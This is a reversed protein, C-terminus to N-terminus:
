KLVTHVTVIFSKSSTENDSTDIATGYYSLTGPAYPGGQATCSTAASCSKLRSFQASGPPKVWIEIRRVGVDDSATATFTVLDSEDPDWTGSPSHSVRIVPPNADPPPPPEPTPPAQIVSVIAPCIEQVGGEWVWCHGAADPNVIWWWTGQANQGDVPATESQMLYGAADYVSDPGERCTLNMTAEVMFACPTATPTSTTTPSPSPEAPAEEVPAGQTPNPEEEGPVAEGAYPVGGKPPNPPPKLLYNLALGGAFILMAGAVVIAGLGAKSGMGELVASPSLGGGSGGGGAGGGAGPAGQASIQDLVRTTWGMSPRVPILAGMFVAVKKMDRETEQCAECRAIHDKVAKRQEADLEGDRYASLLDDLERCRDAGSRALMRIGHNERFSLRARHVIQRANDYTCEMANAMEHYSLGNFERLLIAQRYSAPLTLLTAHVSDQVEHQQVQREAPRRTIPPENLVEPEEVDVFRKGKRLEDLALNGAIRYLWSKFDWPPGLQHIRGHARIFADQTIDEASPLDGVMHYVYNLVPQHLLHFLETFAEQDGAQARRTLAVLDNDPVNAEEAPV